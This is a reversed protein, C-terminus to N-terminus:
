DIIKKTISKGDKLVVKVFLVQEKSILNLMKLEQSDVNTKQQVRKASTDFIIVKDIPDGFSTISLEKNKYSVFVQNGLTEEFDTIVLAKDTYHLVFRDNFVGRETVFEYPKLTLNHITHQEKDEIFINQNQLEGDVQDIDIALSGSFNASYGLQITDTQNFPLSKGQIVLKKGQCVSYFDVYNNGGISEGDFMLDFDDTAATIYGILAQKFLGQNNILNLWVRNKELIANTKDRTKLKFFQSNDGTIAGVGVRMDNTFVVNGAAISTTFFSQGAAIKGSPANSNVVGSNTASASAKQTAVGGTLNYSAYDDSSYAYTGSGPNPNNQSIDTNHTWFYITGDLLGENETLFSYADLASPYPNGILNYSGTMGIPSEIRGNNPVGIFSAEYTSNTQTSYDQPGRIIYGKGQEMFNSPNEQQWNNIAADFSFFKDELTNPSVAFLTQNKVPSSWYTYDFKNIPTTKRKYVINGTNLAQDNFQVLSANNEFTLTGTGQIDVENKIKLTRGEKIIVNKNGSVLCSCGIIDINPDAIPPYDDAFVVKNNLSTPSSGLSWSGGIWTNTVPGIMVLEESASSKCRRDDVKYKYYGETLGSVTTSSGEGGTLILIDNQYLDWISESPLNELEVSGKAVCNPQVINKIIPALTTCTVVGNFAFENISFTGNTSSGGWGYFRFVIETICNQFSSESLVIPVPNVPSDSNPISPSAINAIFGDVSSRFAFFKPGTGSVQAKYTFNVFDIKYGARPTIRFEFYDNSDFSGLNWDRANYRNNSANGNLGNGRGIGSVTINPDVIQGNSYPNSSNPNVGNIGNEFIVQALFTNPFGFVALLVFIFKMKM